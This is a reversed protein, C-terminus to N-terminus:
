ILKMSGVIFYASKIMGSPPYLSLASETSIEKTLSSLAEQFDHLLGQNAEVVMDRTGSGNRGHLSPQLPFHAGMGYDDRKHRRVTKGFGGHFDLLDASVPM